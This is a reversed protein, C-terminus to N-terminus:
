KQILQYINLRKRSNRVMDMLENMSTLKEVYEADPYSNQEFENKFYMMKQQVGLDDNNLWLNELTKWKLYHEVALQIKPTDPIKPLGSEDYPYAYYNLLIVGKEFNTYITRNSINIEHKSRSGFCISKPLCWGKSLRQNVYLPFMLPMSYTYPLGKVYERVTVENFTELSCTRFDCGGADDCNPDPTACSTTTDDWIISRGQYHTIGKTGMDCCEDNVLFASDLIHFDCPFEMSHYDKIWVLAHKYEFCSIGLDSVVKQIMPYWRGPDIQNNADFSSLDEQVTAILQDAPIFNVETM